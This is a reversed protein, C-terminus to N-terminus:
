KGFYERFWPGLKKLADQQDPPVQNLLLPDLGVNVYRTLERMLNARTAVDVQGSFTSDSAPEIGNAKGLKYLAEGAVSCLVPASAADPGGKEYHEYIAKLQSARIRLVCYMEVTKTSSEISFPPLPIDLVRRGTADTAKDFRDREPVTLDLLVPKQAGAPLPLWAIEPKSNDGLVVEGKSQIDPGKIYQGTYKPVSDLIARAAPAEVSLPPLAYSFSKKTSDASHEQLYDDYMAKTAGHRWNNVFDGKEEPTKLALISQTLADVVSSPLTSKLYTGDDLQRVLTISTIKGSKDTILRAARLQAAEAQSLAVLEAVPKEQLAQKQALPLTQAM